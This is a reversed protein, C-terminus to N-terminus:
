LILEKLVNIDDDAEQGKIWREFLTTLNYAHDSFTEKVNKQSRFKKRHWEPVIDCALLVQEKLVDYATGVPLCLFVKRAKTSFHQQM